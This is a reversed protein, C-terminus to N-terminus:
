MALKGMNASMKRQWNPAGFTSCIFMSDWGLAGMGIGQHAFHDGTCSHVGSVCCRVPVLWM